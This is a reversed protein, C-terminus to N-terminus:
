RTASRRIFGIGLALPLWIVYWMPGPGKVVQALDTAGTLMACVLLGAMTLREWGEQGTMAPARWLGRAVLAFGALLLALGVAGGYLWTSLYLDHPFQDKARPLLATLGHGFLPAEGIMALSQRWIDLRQSWGRDALHAVLDGIVGPDYLHLGFAAALAAVAVALVRRWALGALLVAGGAVTAVLPGRSGTLWIFAAMVAVAALLALRAGGRAAGIRGLALILCLGIIAAGLIPHRTEAWGPMREGTGGAALFRAIAWAANVTGAAILTTGLRRADRAPTAAKLAALFFGLTCVCNWLWLWRSPEGRPPASWLLALALWAILLVPLLVLPDGLAPRMAPAVRWVLLPVAVYFMAAWVPEPAVVFGAAVFFLSLPPLAANALATLRGPDAM